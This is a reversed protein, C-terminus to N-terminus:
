RLSGDECLLILTTRQDGSSAPHRIAVMDTIKSKSPVLKLEQVLITDPKIMLIIPNNGVYFLIHIILSSM